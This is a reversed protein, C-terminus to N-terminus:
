FLSAAEAVSSRISEDAKDTMRKINQKVRVNLPKIEMGELRSELAERLDSLELNEAFQAAYLVPRAESPRLGQVAVAALSWGIFNADEERDLANDALRLYLSYKRRSAKGGEVLTDTAEDRHRMEMFCASCWIYAIDLDPTERIQEQCLRLCRDTKSYLHSRVDVLRHFSSFSRPEDDDFHLEVDDRSVVQRVLAQIRPDVDRATVVLPRPANELEGRARKAVFGFYSLFSM